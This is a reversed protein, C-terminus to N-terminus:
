FWSRMCHWDSRDEVSVLKTEAANEADHLVHLLCLHWETLQIDKWCRTVQLSSYRSRFCEIHDGKAIATFDACSSGPQFASAVMQHRLHLTTCTHVTFAGSPCLDDVLSHQLILQCHALHCKYFKAQQMTSSTLCVQLKQLVLKHLHPVHICVVADHGDEVQLAGRPVTRSSLVNHMICVRGAEGRDHSGM